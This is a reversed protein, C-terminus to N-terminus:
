RSRAGVAIALAVSTSSAAIAFGGVDRGLSIFFLFISMLVLAIIIAAARYYRVSADSAPNLPHQRWRRFPNRSARRRAEREEQIFEEDTKGQFHDSGEGTLSM